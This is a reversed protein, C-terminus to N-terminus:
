TRKKGNPKGKVVKPVPTYLVGIQTAEDVGFYYDQNLIKRYWFKKNQKTRQQAIELFMNNLRKGENVQVEHNKVIGDSVYSASHMMFTTSPSAERVDGALFVLFAASMIKGSAIIHIDCPCARLADYIALGEYADGGFSSLYIQIPELNISSMKLLSRVIVSAMAENVESRIEIRRNEIDVGTMLWELDPAAELEVSEDENLIKKKLM